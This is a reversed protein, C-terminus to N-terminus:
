MCPQFNGVLITLSMSAINEQMKLKYSTVHAYNYGTHHWPAVQPPPPDEKLFFDTEPALKILPFDTFSSNLRALLVLNHLILCDWLCSIGCLPANKEGISLSAGMLSKLLKFGQIIILFISCSWIEAVSMLGVKSWWKKNTPQLLSWNTTGYVFSWAWFVCIIM